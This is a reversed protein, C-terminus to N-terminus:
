PKQNAKVVYITAYTQFSFTYCQPLVAGVYGRLSKENLDLTLLSCKGFNSNADYPLQSAIAEPKHGDVESTRSNSKNIEPTLSTTNGGGFSLTAATELESDDEEANLDDKKQEIIMPKIEEKQEISNLTSPDTLECDNKHKDQRFVLLCLDTIQLFYEEMDTTRTGPYEIPFVDSYGLVLFQGIQCGKYINLIQAFRLLKM